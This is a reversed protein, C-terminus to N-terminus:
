RLDKTSLLNFTKMWEGYIKEVSYEKSKEIAAVAMAKRKGDDGMIGALMDAAEEARYGEKHYPIVFGDKGDAIIDGVASYSNYVAPIVGFSMCEALVLPFGEYESTLMLISACEYYPKPEQFGEFSVRQLGYERVQKEIDKRACGDGVITLKWDPFKAELEAWTDIVRYVRKQNYDIRGM